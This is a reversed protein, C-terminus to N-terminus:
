KSTKEAENAQVLELAAYRNRIRRADDASIRPPPFEGAPQWYEPFASYYNALQQELAPESLPKFGIKRSLFRYAQIAFHMNGRENWHGDNKFRVDKWRFGPIARDFGAYLDLLDYRAAIYDASARENERPLTVVAFESDRAEVEAQWRDLIAWFLAVYTASHDDDAGPVVTRSLSDAFPSHSRTRCDGTLDRERRKEASRAMEHLIVPMVRQGLDLFLYTTHLKGILRIHWPTMRAPNLTLEQEDNWKFIGTEYINRIDNACFVYLVYDLQPASPALHYTLYSQGTGYGAVGYNLVNARFGHLNLLYDLVETFVEPGPVASNETFSDGFFGVNIAGSLDEDSIDRHQRLARNNFIVWHKKGNDPHRRMVALNAKRRWIRDSDTIRASDAASAYVPHFLRLYAEIGAVCFLLAAVVLLFNQAFARAVSWAKRFEENWIRTMM